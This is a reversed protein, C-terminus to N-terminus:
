AQEESKFLKTLFLKSKDAESRFGIVPMAVGVIFMLIPILHVWGLTGTNIGSFIACVGMCGSALLWCFMFAFVSRHMEMSIEIATGQAQKIINGEIIPLFSNRYDILRVIKFTGLILTGHYPKHKWTSRIGFVHQVPPEVVSALRREVEDVPLGTEITFREAIVRNM